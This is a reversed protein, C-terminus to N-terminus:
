GLIPGESTSTQQTCFGFLTKSSEQALSETAERLKGALEDCLAQQPITNRNTHQICIELGKSHRDFQSWESLNKIRKFKGTACNVVYMSDTYVMVTSDSEMPHEDLIFNQISELAASVAQVEMGGIKAPVKTGAVLWARGSCEVVASYAGSASGGVGASGDTYVNFIM